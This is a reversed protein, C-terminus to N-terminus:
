NGMCSKNEYYKNSGNGNWGDGHTDRSIITYSNANPFYGLNLTTSLSGSAGDSCNTPNCYTYVSTGSPNVIEFSNEGSWQPWHVDVSLNSM